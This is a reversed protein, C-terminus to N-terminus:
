WAKNNLSGRFINYFLYFGPQRRIPPYISAHCHAPQKNRGGNTMEDCNSDDNWFHDELLGMRTFWLMVVLLLQWKGRVLPLSVPLNVNFIAFHVTNNRERSLTKQSIFVYAPHTSHVLLVPIRDVDSTWPSFFLVDNWIPSARCTSM